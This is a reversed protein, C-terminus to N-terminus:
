RKKSGRRKGQEAVPKRYVWKKFQRPPRTEGYELVNALTELSATMAAAGNRVLSREGQDLRATDGYGVALLRGVQVVLDLAAVAPLLRREVPKLPREDHYASLVAEAHDPTWGSFHTIMQAIDILPSTAIADTWDIIGTIRQDPGSRSALVHSPWVNGHVVVTVEQGAEAAEEIRTMALNVARRAAARWARVSPVRPSLPDLQNLQQRWARNAAASFGSLPSRPAGAAELAGTTAAHFRAISAALDLDLEGPLEGPLDVSGGEWTVVPRRVAPDGPMWSLAEYLHTEHAVITPREPLSGESAGAVAPLADLGQEHGLRLAEHVFAIREMATGDPRRRVLWTGTPVEVRALGSAGPVAEIAQVEPFFRSAVVQLDSSLPLGSM